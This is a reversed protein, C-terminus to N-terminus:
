NHLKLDEMAAQLSEHQPLLVQGSSPPSHQDNYLHQEDGFVRAATTSSSRWNGPGSLDYEQLHPPLTTQRKVRVDPGLEREQPNSM